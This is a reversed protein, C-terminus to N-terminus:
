NIDSLNDNEIQNITANWNAQAQSCAEFLVSVFIEEIFWAM